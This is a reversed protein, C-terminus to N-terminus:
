NLRILCYPCLYAENNCPDLLATNTTRTSHTTNHLKVCILLQTFCQDSVCTSQTGSVKTTM